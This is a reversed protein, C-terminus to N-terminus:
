RRRRGGRHLRRRAPPWVANTLNRVPARMRRGGQHSGTGNGRAGPCRGTQGVQPTLCQDADGTGPQRPQRSGASCLGGAGPVHRRRHGASAARRDARPQSCGLSRAQDAPWAAPGRCTGTTPCRAPRRAAPDPSRQRDPRPGASSRVPHLETIVPSPSSPPRRTATAAHSNPKRPPDIPTAAPSRSARATSRAVASRRGIIARGAEPPVRMCSPVTANRCITFIVAATAACLDARDARGPRGAPDWKRTPDEAEQPDRPWRVSASGPASMPKRPGRTWWARDPERNGSPTWLASFRCTWPSISAM